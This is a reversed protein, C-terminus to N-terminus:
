KTFKHTHVQLCQINENFPISLYDTGLLTTPCSRNFILKNKGGMYGHNLCRYSISGFDSLVSFEITGVYYNINNQTAYPIYNPNIQFSSQSNTNNIEFGIPHTIPIDIIRYRGVCVSYLNNDDYTTDDNFIYKNGNQEIINIVNDQSQYLCKINTTKQFPVTSDYYQLINVTSGNLNGNNLTLLSVSEFDGYVTIWIGGSYFTYVGDNDSGTVSISPYEYKQSTYNSYLDPDAIKAVTPNYSRAIILNTKNNNLIAIPYASPIGMLYYTGNTLYYKRGYKYQLTDIYRPALPNSPDSSETNRLVLRKYKDIHVKIYKSLIINDITFDIPPKYIVKEIVDINNIPRILINNNYNNDISAQLTPITAPPLYGDTFYINQQIIRNSNSPCTIIGINTNKFFVNYDIDSITGSTITTAIKYDYVFGPETPLSINQIEIYGIYKSATINDSETIKIFSIDFSNASVLNDTNVTFGTNYITDNYLLSVRVDTINTNIPSLYYHSGTRARPDNVEAFSKTTASFFISIPVKINFNKLPISSDPDIIIHQMLFESNTNQPVYQDYNFVFQMDIPPNNNPSGFVSDQNYMYLPVNPDDYLEIIPGPVDSKDTTTKIITDSNPCTTYDIYSPTIYTVYTDLDKHYLSEIIRSTFITKTNPQSNLLGWQQKQTLENKDKGKYKLITAKRKMNLQEITFSTTKYPSQILELRNIPYNLIALKKRQNCITTVDFLTNTAM